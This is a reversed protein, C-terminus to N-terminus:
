LDIKKNKSDNKFVIVFMILNIIILIIILILFYCQKKELNLNSKELNLNSKELNLNSKELKVIKEQIDHYIKSTQYILTNYNINRSKNILNLESPHFNLNSYYMHLDFDFDKFDQLFEDIQKIIEDVNNKIEDENNNIILFLEYEMKKPFNIDKIDIDYILPNTIINLKKKEFIQSFRRSKILFKKIYNNEKIYKLSKKIELFNITYPKIYDSNINEKELKNGKKIEFIKKCKFFNFLRFERKKNIDNKFISDLENYGFYEIPYNLKNKLENIIDKNDNNKFKLNEM